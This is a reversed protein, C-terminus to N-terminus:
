DAGRADPAATRQVLPTLEFFATKRQLPWAAGTLEDVVASAENDFGAATATGRYINMELDAYGPLDCRVRIAHDRPMDVFRPTQGAHRGMVYIDAGPPSSDVFLRDASADSPSRTVTACSAGVIMVALLGGHARRREGGM